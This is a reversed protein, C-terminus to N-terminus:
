LAKSLYHIRLGGHVENRLSAQQVNVYYQAPLMSAAQGLALISGSTQAVRWLAGAQALM